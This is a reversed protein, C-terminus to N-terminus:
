FAWVSSSSSATKSSTTECCFCRCFANNKNKRKTHQTHLIIWFCGGVTLQFPFSFIKLCFFSSFVNNLTQSNKKQFPLSFLSVSCMLFVLVAVLVYFLIFVYHRSSHRVPELGHQLYSFSEKKRRREKKRKLHHKQRRKVFSLHQNKGVFTNRRRRTFYRDANVERESRLRRKM